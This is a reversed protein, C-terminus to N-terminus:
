DTFNRAVKRAIDKPDKLFVHELIVTTIIFDKMWPPAALDPNFYYEAGNTPDATLGLLAFVSEEIALQYADVNPSIWEYKKTKKNYVKLIVTELKGDCMYTFQCNYLLGEVYGQHLVKCPTKPRVPNKLRNVVVHAIARGGMLGQNAGEKYIAVAMCAIEDLDLKFDNVMPSLTMVVSLLFSAVVPEM